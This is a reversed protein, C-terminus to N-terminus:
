NLRKGYLFTAFYIISAIIVIMPGTAVNTFYSIILGLVGSFVSFLISFFHYERMNESINRSSAAPLILLANIILIGVWKISLMVILAIFVAFVNEILNVPIHRSKALTRHLSVASLKNFAVFWFILTAAFILVLYIIERRTISLIDGVLLGSYKSFNGGKSLIALGIAISCSSFVSIITDTSATNKRSIRNLLLAFAVAFVIMSISTDAVGLIVGIAIGTLASHGLADSFFAMKNSVIMTGLLGFLPTIILIAIFANRMFGYTYWGTFFEIM